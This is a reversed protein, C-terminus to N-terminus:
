IEKVAKLCMVCLMFTRHLLCLTGGGHLVFTPVLNYALSAPVDAVVCEIVCSHHLATVSYAFNVSTDGDIEVDAEHSQLLPM